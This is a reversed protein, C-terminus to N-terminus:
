EGDEADGTSTDDTDDDSSPERELNEPVVTLHAIGMGRSERTAM